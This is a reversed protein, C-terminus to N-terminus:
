RFGGGSARAEERFLNATHERFARTVAPGGDGFPHLVIKGQVWGLMTPPHWDPGAISVEELTFLPIFRSRAHAGDYLDVPALANRSGAGDGRAFSSEMEWRALRALQSPYSLVVEIGVFTSGGGHSLALKPTFNFMLETLAHHQATVDKALAAFSGHYWYTDCGDRLKADLFGAVGSRDGFRTNRLYIAVDNMSDSYWKGALQLGLGVLALVPCVVGVEVTLMGALAAVSGVTGIAAGTREGEDQARAIDRVGKVVDYVSTVMSLPSLKIAGTGVSKYLTPSPVKPLAKVL